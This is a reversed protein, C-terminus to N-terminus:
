RSFSNAFVEKFQEELSTQTYTEVVPKEYEAVAVEVREM